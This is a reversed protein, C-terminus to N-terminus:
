KPARKNIAVKGFNVRDDNAKPTVKLRDDGRFFGGWVTYDGAKDARSVPMTHVDRIIDGPVWYQMPYKGGVPKHDGNIRNGGFDVHIFMEADSPIRSLVEWYTTVVLPDGSGVQAPIETAYLRLRGDVTVKKTALKAAKPLSTKSFISEAVYNQDTEGRDPHLENSVLLFRSSRGDVVYFEAKRSCTKGAEPGRKITSYLEGLGAAPIVAFLRGKADCFRAELETVRPLREMSAGGFYYSTDKAAIGAILLPEGENSLKEYERLIGKQSFHDAAEPIAQFLMEGGWGLISLVLAGPILVKARAPTLLQGMRSAAATLLNGLGSLLSALRGTRGSVSARITEGIAALQAIPSFFVAVLLLGWIGILPRMIDLRYSSPFNAPGDLFISEFLVQPGPVGLEKNFSEAVDKTTVALLVLAAFGALSWTAQSRESEADDRRDTLAAAVLIALPMAVPMLYVAALTSSLGLVLFGVGLAGICVALIAGRDSEEHRLALAAALPLFVITPYLSYGTVRILVDFTPHVPLTRATFFANSLFGNLAESWGAEQAALGLPLAVGVLAVLGAVVAGPGAFLARLRSKPGFTLLVLLTPGAIMALGFSEKGAEWGGSLQMAAPAMAAAFLALGVGLGIRCFGGAPRLSLASVALLGLSLALGVGGRAGTVLAVLLGITAALLPRRDANSAALEAVAVVLCSFLGLFLGDAALNTGGLAAQPVMAFLLAGLLAARRGVWRDLLLLGSAAAAVLLLLAPLRLGLESGGGAAFGVMGALSSLWPRALMTGSQMPAFISGATGDALGRALTAPATEWPEWLGTTAAPVLYFLAIFAAIGAAMRGRGRGQSNADTPNAM